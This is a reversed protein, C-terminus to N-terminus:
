GHRVSIWPEPNSLAAGSVEDGAQLAERIKARDPELKTRVYEAPLDAESVIVVRGKGMGISATFDAPTLKKIGTEQMYHLVANRKRIARIEIRMVREQMKKIRAQLADVIAEDELASRIVAALMEPLDSIGSLTDELTDEDSHLEPWRELLEARLAEHRATAMRLDPM